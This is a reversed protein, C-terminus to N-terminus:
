AAINQDISKVLEKSVTRSPDVYVDLLRTIVERSKLNCLIAPSGNKSLAIDDNGVWYFVVQDGTKASTGVCDALAKKFKDVGERDRLDSFAENFADVFAQQGVERVFNLACAASLTRDGRAIVQSFSDINNPARSKWTQARKFAAESLYAGCM